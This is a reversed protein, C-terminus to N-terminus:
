SANEIDVTEYENSTEMLLGPDMTLGESESYTYSATTPSMRAAFPVSGAYANHFPLATGSMDAQDCINELINDPERNVNAPTVFNKNHLRTGTNHNYPQQNVRDSFASHASTDASNAYWLYVMETNGANTQMSCTGSDWVCKQYRGNFDTGADSVVCNDHRLNANGRWGSADWCYKNDGENVDFGYAFMSSECTPQDTILDCRRSYAYMHYRRKWGDATSTKQNPYYTM